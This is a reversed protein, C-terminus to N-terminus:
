ILPTVRGSLILDNFMMREIRGDHEKPPTFPKNIWYHHLSSTHKAFNDFGVISINPYGIIQLFWAAVILGSSALLENDIISFGSEWFLRDQVSKRTRSFFTNDIKLVNDYGLPNDHDHPCIVNQCKKDSHTGNKFYASWVDTRSGTYQEFGETKFDNFRVVLDFSDILQGREKRLISPGNGVLLIKKSTDFFSLTQWNGYIYRGYKKINIGGAKSIMLMWWEEPKVTPHLTEGKWKNVSHSYSISFIFRNSLRNFESLVSPIREEEVHELMDFACLLDFQKDLFGTSLCDCIIDAGPCAFDIGTMNSREIFDISKIFENWGCGVDLISTPQIKKIIPISGAGHNSHGYKPYKEVSSYIGIYKELESM